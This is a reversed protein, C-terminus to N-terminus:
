PAKPWRVSRKGARVAASPPTGSSLDAAMVAAVGEQGIDTTGVRETLFKEMRM